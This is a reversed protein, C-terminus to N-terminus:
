KIELNFKDPGEDLVVFRYEQQKDRASAALLHPGLGLHLKSKGSSIAQGDLTAKASNPKVEIEVQRTTSAESPTLNGAAIRQIQEVRQPYWSQFQRYRERTADYPFEFLHQPPGSQVSNAQAATTKVRNLLNPHDSCLMESVGGSGVAGPYM